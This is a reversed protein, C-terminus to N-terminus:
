RGLGTLQEDLALLTRTLVSVGLALDTSSTWEEPVHSLGARSPVFILGAPVAHNVMQTDHSAGSNMVKYSTASRDCEASIIRRIWAPLVVPSSDSLLRPTLTVGRDKCKLRARRVIEDATERQRGSDVDRVDVWLRVHGPITTISGPSVELKGVTCRTGRHSPDTAIEEALLVVEAAAALADHRLSMPTSGTHSAQGDFTLEFRTSGSILDVIGISKGDHELVQGQEVHLEVFGAWDDANWKAESMRGPEFGLERMAEALSVGDADRLRALEGSTWLGGVAKSGICAQGFRAGEEGAFAVFRIPRDHVVDYDVLLRAVEVAAVVGAIGDFSGGEPVSDLHSGTGIAPKAHEGPREAITNGAPDTRVDLGLESMWDAFLSHAERERKTFALRTVGRSDSDGDTVASLQRLLNTIRDPDGIFRVHEEVETTSSRLQPTLLGAGPPTGDQGDTPTGTVARGM